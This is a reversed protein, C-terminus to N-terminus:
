PMDGMSFFTDSSPVYLGFEEPSYMDSLGLEGPANTASVPAHEVVTLGSSSTLGSQALALQHRTNLQDLDPYVSALANGKAGLKYLHMLGYRIADLSHDDYQQANERINRQSRATGTPNPARYNNFERITNTCSFDVYLGAKTLKTDEIKEWDEPLIADSLDDFDSLDRVKLFGSVLNVGERWNEKAEPLALCQVKFLESVTLADAPGAADGFMLDIRYGEPQERNRMILAHEELRLYSKYHERWVYVTDDPGLQFEIAALPNTFGWDWCNGTYYTTGRRRALWNGRSTNVCWVEGHYAERTIHCNNSTSSAKLASRKPTAWVNTHLWLCLGTDTKTVSTAIGLLTCALQVPFLQRESKQVISRRGAATTHGDGLVSVDVFLQLQARTLSLIFQKDVVKHAELSQWLYRSNAAGLYFHTMNPQSPVIREQWGGAPFLETLALRIRSVNNSNVRHSQHISFTSNNGCSGETWLWALVEVLADTYKAETPLDVVPVAKPIKDAQALTDTTRWLWGSKGGRRHIDRYTLWRHNPTTVSSHTRGEMRVVRHGEAPAKYRYVKRIPDWSALGTETNISLTEDGVVVEDCRLWGRKTFIETEQDVCIYNPLDPNFKVERVHTKVNWEQYIKGAFSTFDAGYEQAFWEAATTREILQIESDERGGPYVHPNQWSPFQQSWYEPENPNQGLMWLDYLWNQGEPTTPFDASGRRDSLAARIYREFTDKKHKAAESMIVWDLDEGVLSEAHDASRVEVMSGWPFEISMQGQKKNYSKRVRRDRGLKLRVIMDRWIVRFEKEGLDYTPGVIWGRKNPLLLSPERDRGAMVSKGYRRGCVPIRFRAPTNHYALQGKHPEYGIHEFYAQKDIVKYSGGMSMQNM